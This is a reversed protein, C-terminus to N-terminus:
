ELVRVSRLFDILRSAVEHPENLMKFHSASDLQIEFGATEARAADASYSDTWQVYLGRRSPPWKPHVPIAEEYLQIPVDVMEALFADRVRSNTINTGFSLLMSKPIMGGHRNAVEKWHAITAPDDFSAFRSTRSLPFIADLFIHTEFLEPDLLALLNGAGSHAVAVIKQGRPLSLAANIQAIHHEFLKEGRAVSNDLAVVTAEFGAAKLSLVLTAWTEKAVLPSHLLLFHTASLM